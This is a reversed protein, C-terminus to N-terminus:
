SLKAATKGLSFNCNPLVHTTCIAGSESWNMAQKPGVVQSLANASCVVQSDDRQSKLWYGVLVSLAATPSSHTFYNLLRQLWLSRLATSDGLGAYIGPM